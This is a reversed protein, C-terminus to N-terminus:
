GKHEQIFGTALQRCSDVGLGSRGGWEHALQEKKKQLKDVMGDVDASLQAKFRRITRQKDPGFM